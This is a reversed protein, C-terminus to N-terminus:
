LNKSEKTRDTVAILPNRTSTQVECVRTNGCVINGNYLLTFEKNNPCALRSSAEDELRKSTPDNCKWRLGTTLSEQDRVTM